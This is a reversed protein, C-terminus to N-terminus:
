IQQVGDMNVYDNDPTSDLLLLDKKDAILRRILHRDIFRLLGTM